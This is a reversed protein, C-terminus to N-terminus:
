NTSWKYINVGKTLIMIKEIKKNGLSKELDLQSIINYNNEYDLIVFGRDRNKMSDEIIKINKNQEEKLLQYNDNNFNYRADIMWLYYNLSSMFYYDSGNNYNLYDIFGKMNEHWENTTISPSGKSSSISKLLNIPNFTLLILITFIFYYINKIPSNKLSERIKVLAYIGTAMLVSFFPLLYFIYRARFERNFFFIYFILLTMFVLLYLFYYVKKKKLSYILGSLILLTPLIFNLGKPWWNIIPSNKSFFIQFFSYNDNIKTIYVFPNNNIIKKTIITLIIISIIIPLYSYYKKFKFDLLEEKIKKFNAAIFYITTILIIAISIKLTSLKDIKHAYLIFLFITLLNFFIKIINKKNNLILEVTNILILFVILIIFNYLTYERITRAVGIAWPSIAWLISSLIGINKNIKEGLFYLPIITLSGLIVGPIRAWFLFSYFNSYESFQAFFKVILTLLYARRYDTKGIDILDRVASLHAYEDTYPELININWARLILAILFILFIIIYNNNIKRNLIDIIKNKM